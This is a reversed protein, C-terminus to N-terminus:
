SGDDHAIAIPLAGIVNPQDVIVLEPGLPQM